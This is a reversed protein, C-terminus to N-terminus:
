AYVRRRLILVLFILSGLVGLTLGIPIEYPAIITRGFLDSVLVMLAGLLATYKLTNKLHDGQIMTVVNPVILGLFPVTGVTVLISATMMSVIFLGIAMVKKYDLGLNKSFDEGMGVVTFHYAYFFALITLPIVIYLMEYRGSIILSFDGVLYNNLAQLLDFRYAFFTTISDIVSGLILGILPVFIVNKVKMKNSLKIFIFTGLLAFVFAVILRTAISAGTFLLMGVLVGFRASDLTAATTPAVFKNKSIQQMILGSISMGIGTFLISLLRPLRSYLLLHIADEDLRILAGATLPQVGIFLSILSLGLVIVLLVYFKV